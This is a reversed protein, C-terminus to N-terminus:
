NNLYNKCIKVIENALINYSRNTFHIMDTYKSISFKNTICNYIMLQSLLNM